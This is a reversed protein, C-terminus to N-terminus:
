FGYKMGLATISIVLEMLQLQAMNIYLHALLDSKQNMNLLFSIHIYVQQYLYLRDRLQLLARVLVLEYISFLIQLIIMMLVRGKFTVKEPIYQKYRIIEIGDITETYYTTSNLYSSHIKWQPYNPFGTLIIVKYGKSKLHNSFQTTYLGIATDEPYYFASIVTITKQATM